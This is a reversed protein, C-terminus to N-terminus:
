HAVALPLLNRDVVVHPWAHTAVAVGEIGHADLAGRVLRGLDVRAVDSIELSLVEFAAALLRSSRLLQDRILEIPERDRSSGEAGADEALSQLNLLASQLCGQLVHSMRDIESMRM